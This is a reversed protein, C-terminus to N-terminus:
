KSCTYRYSILGKSRIHVRLKYSLDENIPKNNAWMRRWSTTFFKNKSGNLQCYPKRLQYVKLTHM